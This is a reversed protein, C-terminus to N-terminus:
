GEVDYMHIALWRGLTGKGREPAFGYYVHDGFAQVPAFDDPIRQMAAELNRFIRTKDEPCHQYGETMIEVKMMEGGTADELPCWIPPFSNHEVARRGARSCRLGRLAISDSCYPCDGCIKVKIIKM